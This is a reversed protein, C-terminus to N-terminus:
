GVQQGPFLCVAIFVDALDKVGVPDDFVLLPDEDDVLVGRVLLDVVLAHHAPDGVVMGVKRFLPGYPVRRRLFIQSQVPKQLVIIDEM